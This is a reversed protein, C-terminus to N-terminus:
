GSNQFGVRQSAVIRGSRRSRSPVEYVLVHLDCSMVPNEAGV